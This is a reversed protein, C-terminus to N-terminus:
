GWLLARVIFVRDWRPLVRELALLDGPGDVVVPLERAAVEVVVAEFVAGTIIIGDEDEKRDLVGSGRESEAPGGPALIRGLFRLSFM